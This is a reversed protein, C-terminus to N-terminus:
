PPWKWNGTKMYAMLAFFVAVIIALPKLLGAIKNLVRVTRDYFKGLFIFFNEIPVFVDFIKQTQENNKNVSESLLEQKNLVEQIAAANIDIKIEINNRWPDVSRGNILSEDIVIDVM